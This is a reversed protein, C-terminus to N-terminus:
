PKSPSTLPRGKEGIVFAVFTAPTAGANKLSHPVGNAVFHGEGAKLVHPAGEGVTEELEGTLVYHVEPGSHSHMPLSRGPAVTIKVASVLADPATHFYEFALREVKIGERVSVVGAFEPAKVAPQAWVPAAIALGLVTLFLSKRM